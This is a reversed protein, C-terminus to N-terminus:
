PRAVLARVAGQRRRAQRRHGRVACRRRAEGSTRPDAARRRQDPHRHPDRRPAAARLGQRRPRQLTKSESGDSSYTMGNDTLVGDVDTLVLRIRKAGAAPPTSATGPPASCRTSSGLDAPRTSRSTPRTRCRGCAGIRGSIRVGTRSWRRGAPSTCRGTRSSTRGRSGPPAAPRRPRLRRRAGDGDVEWRFRRQRVVSLVSDFGHIRAARVGRRPGPRAAAPQHGAAAPDRRRRPRRHTWCTSCCARRPPPTRRRPPRAARSTSRGPLHPRRARRDRPRRHSVLVRDVCRAGLAAQGDLGALPRGGVVALNKGPFARAARRPGPHRRRTYTARHRARGVEAERAAGGRDAPDRRQSTPSRRPSTACTVRWGRMGDPELSAAHDTGKSTRDLTFHREVYTRVSRSRLWTPPSAWTTVPSASRRAGDVGYAARLRQMELLCIDEFPVPYGSTCAYLVLRDALRGARRFLEVIREEEARTTMGLSLHIIM